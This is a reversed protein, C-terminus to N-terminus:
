IILCVQCGQICGVAEGKGQISDMKFQWYGHKSIPTYTIPSVFRNVDVGGLTIEGGTEDNPNRSYINLLLLSLSLMSLLQLYYCGVIVAATFSLLLLLCCVFLLLRRVVFLM